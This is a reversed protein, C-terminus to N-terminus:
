KYITKNYSKIWQPNKYILQFKLRKKAERKRRNKVMLHRWINKEVNYIWAQPSKQAPRPTSM